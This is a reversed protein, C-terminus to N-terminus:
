FCRWAGERKECKFERHREKNETNEPTVLTPPLYIRWFYTATVVFEECPKLFRTRYTIRGLSIEANRSGQAYKDRIMDQEDRIIGEWRPKLDRIRAEAELYMDRESCEPPPPPPPTADVQLFNRREDRRLSDVSHNPPDFRAQDRPSITYSGGAPVKGFTYYGNTDTTATASRIMSGALSITIGGRPGVLSM